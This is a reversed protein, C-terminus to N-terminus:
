VRFWRSALLLSRSFLVRLLCSAALFLLQSALVTNPITPLLCRLLLYSCCSFCPILPSYCAKSLFFRANYLLYCGAQLSSSSTVLSFPSVQLSSYLLWSPTYFLWGVVLALRLLDTMLMSYLIILLICCAILLSRQAVFFLVIALIFSGFLWIRAAYLYCRTALQWCCLLLCCLAVLM